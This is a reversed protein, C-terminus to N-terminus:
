AAQELLNGHDLYFWSPDDVGLLEAIRALNKESPTIKGKRWRYVAKESTELARSLEAGSMDKAAMAAILNAAVRERLSQTQGTAQGTM